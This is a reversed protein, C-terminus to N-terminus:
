TLADLLKQRAAPEVANLDRPAKQKEKDIIKGNSEDILFTSAGVQNATMKGIIEFYARLSQEFSAQVKVQEASWRKVAIPTRSGSSVLLGM